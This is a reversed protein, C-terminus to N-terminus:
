RQRVPAAPRCVCRRTQQEAGFDLAKLIRKFARKELRSCGDQVFELKRVEPRAGLPRLARTHRAPLPIPLRLGSFTVASAFHVCALRLAM